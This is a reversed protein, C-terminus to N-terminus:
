GSYGMRFSAEKVADLLFSLREYIMEDTMRSIPGSISIAAAIDGKYNYVPAAICRAGLSLEQNDWAYGAARVKELERLLAEKTALSNETMVTLGRVAIYHDIKNDDYNLLMLKGSGTCHLPATNGIRQMTTLMQVNGNVVDIYLLRMEHEISLNASELFIHSLSRLYPACIQIIENHSSVQDALRCIKMTMYYKGTDKEQAIYGLRQLTALYRLVTSGNMELLETFDSLRMPKTQKSLLELMKIVKEVSQNSQTLKEDSRM